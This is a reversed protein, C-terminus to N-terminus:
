LARFATPPINLLDIIKCQLPTLEPLFDQVHQGTSTTLHHRQLPEFIELVRDATPARCRRREPYLPLEKIEHSSMARRLEREILAHITLAFYSLSLFAEIRGINKLLVPATSQVSKLLHHRTEILPQKCKYAKLVQCLSLDRRNSILPFIGDCRRDYEINDTNPTLTLRFAPKVFKRFRTDKSSRGRSEQRFTEKNYQEIEYVIWRRSGTKDLIDDVAKAIGAKTTYRCRSGALKARLEELETYGQEIASKRAQYDREQKTSSCIWILRFGDADPIPSEM